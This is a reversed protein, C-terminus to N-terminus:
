RRRAERPPRGETMVWSLPNQVTAVKQFHPHLFHEDATYFVAILGRLPLAVLYDYIHIGSENSLAFAEHTVQASCPVIQCRDTWFLNFVAERIDAPVGLKRMVEPIEAAQYASLFIRRGTDALLGELFQRAQSLLTLGGTISLEVYAYEWINTDVGADDSV